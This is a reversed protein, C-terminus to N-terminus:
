NNSRTELKRPKKKPKDSKGPNPNNSSSKTELKRPKKRDRSTNDTEKQLQELKENRRQLEQKLDENQQKLDRSEEKLDEIGQDSNGTEQQLNKKEQKPEETQSQEEEKRNPKPDNGKGSPKGEREKKGPKSNQVVSDKEGDGAKGTGGMEPMMGKAGEMWGKDPGINGGEEQLKELEKEDPMDEEKIQGVMKELTQKQEDSAVWGPLWGTAKRVGKGALQGMDVMPGHVAGAAAGVGAGLGGTIVSTVGGVLTGTLAGLTASPAFGLGTGVAMGQFTGSRLYKATKGFSEGEIEANVAQETLKQREDPDGAAAAADKLDKAKKQASVAASAAKSSEQRIEQDSITKGKKNSQPSNSASKDSQKSKASTM